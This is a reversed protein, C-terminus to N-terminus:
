RRQSVVKFSVVTSQSAAHHPGALVKAQVRYKGPKVFKIVTSAKGFTIPLRQSVKRPGTVLLVVTGSFPLGNAAKVKVQFTRSKKVISKKATRVTVTTAMPLTPATVVPVPPPPTSPPPTPEPVTFTASGSSPAYYDGDSPVGFPDGAFAIAVTHTGPSATFGFGTCGLDTGITVGDLTVTCEGRAISGGTHSVAARAIWGLPGNPTVTVVTTTPHKQVEFPATDEVEPISGPWEPVYRASMTRAGATLGGAFTVTAVGNVVDAIKWTDGFDTSPGSTSFAVQGTQVPSGAHVVTATAVVNDGVFATTPAVELSLTTTPEAAVAGSLSAGLVAWALAVAAVVRFKM